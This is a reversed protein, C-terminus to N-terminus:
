TFRISRVIQDAQALETEHGKPEAVYTALALNAGDSLHWVRIVDERTRFTAAAVTTSREVDTPAGLDHEAAFQEILDFLIDATPNEPSEAASIQLIGKDQRERALTLPGDGETLERTADVWGPPLTVTLNQWTLDRPPM